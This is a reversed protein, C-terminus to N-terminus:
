LEATTGATGVALDLNGDRQLRRHRPRGSVAELSPATRWSDAVGNGLLIRVTQTPYATALDLIGDNNFDATLFGSVSSGPSTATQSIPTFGGAGNGLFVGVSNTEGTSQTAAVDPRGDHNFDGVVVHSPYSNNALLVTSAQSFRRRWRWL